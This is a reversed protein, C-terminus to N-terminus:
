QSGGGGGIIRCVYPVLFVQYRYTSAVETKTFIRQLTKVIEVEYGTEEKTERVIAGEPTEGWDVGGGPFEWTKHFKPRHPDNRLAM